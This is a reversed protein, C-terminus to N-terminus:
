SEEDDDNMAARYKDVTTANREDVFEWDVYGGDLPGDNDVFERVFADLDDIPGVIEIQHEFMSSAYECRIGFTTATM